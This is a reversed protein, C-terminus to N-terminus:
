EPQGPPAPLPRITAILAAHDTFVPVFGAHEYRAGDVVVGRTMLHDIRTTRGFQGRYSWDGTPVAFRWDAATCAARPRQHKPGPQAPDFNFDGIVVDADLNRAIWEWYRSWCRAFDKPYTPARLGALIVSGVSVRLLNSEAHTDPPDAPPPLARLDFRSAILVQNTFRSATYELRQSALVHTLGADALASRLETRPTAEVFETLVLVDPRHACVSSTLGPPFPKHRTRHNVNLALIRMSQQDDRTDHSISM